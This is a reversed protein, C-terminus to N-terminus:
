RQDDGSRGTGTDKGNVFSSKLTAMSANLPDEERRLVRRWAFSDGPFGDDDEPDPPEFLNPLNLLPELANMDREADDTLEYFGLQSLVQKLLRPVAFSTLLM